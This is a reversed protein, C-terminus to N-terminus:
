LRSTSSLIGQRYAALMQSAINVQEGPKFNESAKLALESQKTINRIEKSM